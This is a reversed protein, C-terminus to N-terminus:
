MPALNTRLFFSERVIDRRDYEFSRVGATLAWQSSLEYTVEGFVAKQEVTRDRESPDEGVLPLGNPGFAGNTPLFFDALGEESGYWELIFHDQLEFEEYYLGAIFQLPGELQSSLRIEVTDGEKDEQNNALGGAVVLNVVRWISNLKLVVKLTHTPLVLSAWNLDYDLVLNALDFKTRVLFRSQLIM